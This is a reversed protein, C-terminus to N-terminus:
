FRELLEVFAGAFAHLRATREDAQEIRITKRDPELCAFVTMWEGNSFLRVAAIETCRPMLGSAPLCFLLDGHLARAAEKVVTSFARSGDFQALSLELELLTEDLLSPLITGHLVLPVGHRGASPQFRAQYASGPTMPPSISPRAPSASHARETLAM